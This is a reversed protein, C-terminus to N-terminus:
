SIKQVHREKHTEKIATEIQSITVNSDLQEIIFKLLESDGIKRKSIYEGKYYRSQQFKHGIIPELKKSLIMVWYNLARSKTMTKRVPYKKLAYKIGNSMASLLDDTKEPNNKMIFIGEPDRIENKISHLSPYCTDIINYFSNALEHNYNGSAHVKNISSQAKQIHSLTKELEKQIKYAPLQEKSYTTWRLYAKGASIIQQQLETQKSAEKLNLNNFLEDFFDSTYSNEINM